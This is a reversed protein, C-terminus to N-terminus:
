RGLRDELIFSQNSSRESSQGECGGDRLAEWDDRGSPDEVELSGRGERVEPPDDRLSLRLV